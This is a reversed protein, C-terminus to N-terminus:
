WNQLSIDKIRQTFTNLFVNTNGVSDAIWAYWFGHEFLLKKIHSAWTTKGADTLSRLMLYCQRPYRHNTMQTLKIWYKVTQTMYFVALPFRGCEGLAFNDPTKQKVFVKQKRELLYSSFWSITEESIKYYKLKKLLLTHDVLDFAKRYDIM